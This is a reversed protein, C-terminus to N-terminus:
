ELTHSNKSIKHINKESETKPTPIFLHTMTLILTKRMPFDIKDSIPFHKISDIWLIIDAYNHTRSEM